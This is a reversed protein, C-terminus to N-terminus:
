RGRRGRGGGPKQPQRRGENLEPQTAIDGPLGAEDLTPDSLCVMEDGNLGDVIEIDLDSRRGGTWEVGKRKGGYGLARNNKSVPRTVRLCAAPISSSSFRVLMPRPTVTKGAFFKVRSKSYALGISACSVVSSREPPRKQTFM